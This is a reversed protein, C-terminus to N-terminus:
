LKLLKLSPGSFVGGGGLFTSTLFTHPYVGMGGGGISEHCPAKNLVSIVHCLLTCKHCVSLQPASNVNMPGHM